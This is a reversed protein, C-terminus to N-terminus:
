RSSPRAVLLQMPATGQPGEREVAFGARRLLRALGDGLVARAPAPEGLRLYLDVLWGLRPPRDLDAAVLCGGRRLVRAVEGLARERVGTPLEHLGYSV